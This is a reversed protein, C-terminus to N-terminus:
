LGPDLIVNSLNSLTVSNTTNTANKIYTWLWQKLEDQDVEIKIGDNDPTIKIGPGPKLNTAQSVQKIWDSSIQTIYRPTEM